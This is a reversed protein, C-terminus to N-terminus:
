TWRHGLKARPFSPPVTRNRDDQMWSPKLNFDTRSLKPLLNPSLKVYCKFFILTLWTGGKTFTTDIQYWNPMVGPGILTGSQIRKTDPNTDVQKYDNQLFRYAKHPSTRNPIRKRFNLCINCNVFIECEELIFARMLYFAIYPETQDVELWGRTRKTPLM